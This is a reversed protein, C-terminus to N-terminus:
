DRVDPPTLPGSRNIRYAALRRGVTARWWPLMSPFLWCHRALPILDALSSHNPPLPCSCFASPHPYSPHHGLRQGVSGDACTLPASSPCPLLLHTVAAEPARLYSIGMPHRHREPTNGRVDWLVALWSIGLRPIKWDSDGKSMLDEM